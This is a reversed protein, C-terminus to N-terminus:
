KRLVHARLTSQPGANHNLRACENIRLSVISPPHRPCFPGPSYRHFAVRDPHDLSNEQVVRTRLLRLRSARSLFIVKSSPSVISTPRSSVSSDLKLLRIPRVLKKATRNPRTKVM